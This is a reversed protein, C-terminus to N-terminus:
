LQSLWPFTMQRFPHSFIESSIRDSEISGHGIGTQLKLLEPVLLLGLPSGILTGLDGLM